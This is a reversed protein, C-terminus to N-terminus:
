HGSSIRLRVRCPRPTLCGVPISASGGPTPVFASTGFIALHPPDRHASSAALVHGSSDLAQVALFRPQTGIRLSSEFHRRPIRRFGHLATRRAGGLFRWAAVETAGNWSTYLRMRGAPGPVTALAPRRSPHGTWHF